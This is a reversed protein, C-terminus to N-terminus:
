RFFYDIFTILIVLAFLLFVGLVMYKMFRNEHKLHMFYNVVITAKVSAVLVAVAIAFAGFNVTAVFVTVFTLFLLAVLVKGHTFYSTIHDHKEEMNHEIDKSM